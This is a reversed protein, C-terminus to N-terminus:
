RTLLGLPQSQYQVYKSGINKIRLKYQLLGNISLQIILKFIIWHLLMVKIPIFFYLLLTLNKNLYWGACPPSCGSKWLRSLELGKTAKWNFLVLQKTRLSELFYDKIDVHCTPSCLRGIESSTPFNQWSSLPRMWVGRPCAPKHQINTHMDEEIKIQGLATHRQVVKMNSDSEQASQSLKNVEEEIQGKQRRWRGGQKTEGAGKQRRSALPHCVIETGIQTWRSTCWM